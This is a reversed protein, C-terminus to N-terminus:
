GAAGGNVSPEPVGGEQLGHRLLVDAYEGSAMVRELAGRVADRLTGADQAVAIGYLGPEYQTDAALQYHARTRSGSVLEVAPPYDSLVATARGTRVQLLARANDAFTRVRIPEAGCRAQARELLDVQVTGVEVAVDQGCLDTLALVGQPNGRRVVISTGATFYDVFDVREQREATDTMASMALDLEHEQVAELLEAFPTPVMEVRVGLVRGVAAALDPEFGVVTRGDSAFTSLPPYAADTGIRLVGAARVAEPLLDRLGVDHATAPAPPAASSAAASCGASLAGLALLAAALRRASRATMDRVGRRPPRRARPRPGSGQEPAARARRARRRRPRAQRRVHRRRRQAAPRRLGPRLAPLRRRRLQRRGPGPHGAVPAPELLGRHLGRLLAELDEGDVAPLLLAFEDGGLRAVLDDTRLGEQLRRAVLALLEDGAAHGLADNVEKFGDLDVLVVAGSPPDEGGALALRLAGRFHERNPLGTLADHLAEFERQAAHRRLSRSSSWSIAALVLYLLSLALGLRRSSRTLEAASAAAIDDYPLYLELVGAARGSVSPVVPQLVRVVQGTGDVPDVEISARVEGRDAAARFEPSSAPVGDLTTDDDSFVVAGEFSRLRLRVLSGNFVSLDTAGQLRARERASLGESLLDGSLAPAVAMETIVAAQARGQGLGREVAQHQADRVLLAALLLLPVSTAAVSAVFLRVGAKRAEGPQTRM